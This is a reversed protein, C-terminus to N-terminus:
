SRIEWGEEELHRRVTAAVQVAGPTDSHICISDITPAIRTAQAAAAEPDTILADPEVRSVLGGSPAYMRDAFGEQIYGVAAEAALRAVPSGALCMLDLDFEKCVHLLSSAAVSAGQAADNYLLGHPKLYSITARAAHAIGQLQDVQQRISRILVRPNIDIRNRGFGSRDPYSPHAGIRIGQDVCRTITMRMSREDGAHGGCAINASSILFLLQDDIEDLGEGLDANLDIFM